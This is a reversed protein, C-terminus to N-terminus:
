LEARVTEDAVLKFFTLPTFAALVQTKASASAVFTATVLGEGAKRITTGLGIEVEAPIRAFIVGLVV